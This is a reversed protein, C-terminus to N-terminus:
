FYHYAQQTLLRQEEVPGIPVTGVFPMLSEEALGQHGMWVKCVKIDVMKLATLKAALDVLQRNKNYHERFFVKAEPGHLVFVIPSAPQAVSPDFFDNSRELVALLEDATHLELRAIYASNEIPVVSGSFASSIFYLTLVAVFISKLLSSAMRFGSESFLFLLAVVAPLKLM